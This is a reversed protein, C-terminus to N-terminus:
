DKRQRARGRRNSGRRWASSASSTTRTAAKSENLRLIADTPLGDVLNDVMHWEKMIAAIEKLAKAFDAGMKTILYNIKDSAANIAGYCAFVEGDIASLWDCGKDGKVGYARVRVFDSGYAVAMMTSFFDQFADGSSKRLKLELAIRWWYKQESTILSTPEIKTASSALIYRYPM